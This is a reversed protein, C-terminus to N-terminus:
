WEIGQSRLLDQAKKHGLKAAAQLDSLTIKADGLKAYTIGRNYYANAYKPDLDIAM